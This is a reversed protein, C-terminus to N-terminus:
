PQYLVMPQLASAPSYAGGTQLSFVPLQITLAQPQTGQVLGGASLVLQIQVSAETSTPIMYEPPIGLSPDPIFGALVNFSGGHALAAVIPSSPM